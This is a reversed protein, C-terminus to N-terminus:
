KVELRFYILYADKPKIHLQAQVLRIVSFYLVVQLNLDNMQIISLHSNNAVKQALKLSNETIRQYNIEIFATRPLKNTANMGTNEAVFIYFTLFWFGSYKFLRVGHDIFNLFVKM